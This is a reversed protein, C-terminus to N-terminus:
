YKKRYYRKHDKRQHFRTDFSFLDIIKRNFTKKGEGRISKEECWELYQEFIEKASLQLMDDEVLNNESIWLEISSSRNPQKLGLQIQTDNDFISKDKESLIGIQKVIETLLKTNIQYHQLLYKKLFPKKEDSCYHEGDFSYIIGDVSCLGLKNICETAIDYESQAKKKGKEMENLSTTKKEDEKEKEGTTEKMAIKEEEVTKKKEAMKEKETSTSTTDLNNIQVSDIDDKLLDVRINYGFEKKYSKYKIILSNEIEEAEQKTLGAAVIEHKIHIWGYKRITKTFRKNSEYGLGENWRNQPTNQTIGIYIKGLPDTHKYVIYLETDYLSKEIKEALILKKEIQELATSILPNNIEMKELENKLLSIEEM